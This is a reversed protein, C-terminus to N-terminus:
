KSQRPTPAVSVRALMNRIPDGPMFRPILWDITVALFFTLTYILIKRTLYRRM